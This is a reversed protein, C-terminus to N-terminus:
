SKLVQSVRFPSDFEALSQFNADRQSLVPSSDPWDAGFSNWAIGADLSPNHESTVHYMVVAPAKLVYFGHAMGRPLFYANRAEASLRVVEHKGFTASDKRLDLGVDMIAGDICYVLKAHDAPPLQFHMGRLVRAESVTYFTEVFRVDVGLSSFISESYSKVFEGRSDRFVKCRLELCGEITSKRVLADDQNLPPRAMEDEVSKSMYM